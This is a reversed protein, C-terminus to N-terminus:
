VSIHPRHVRRAAELFRLSCVAPFLAERVGQEAATWRLKDPRDLRCYACMDKVIFGYVVIEYVCNLSYSFIFTM